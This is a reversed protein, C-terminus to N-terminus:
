FTQPATDAEHSAPQRNKLCNNPTLLFCRSSSRNQETPQQHDKSLSLLLAQLEASWNM